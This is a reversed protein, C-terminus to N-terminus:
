SDSAPAPAASASMALVLYHIGARYARKRDFHWRLRLGHESMKREYARVMQDIPVDFPRDTGYFEARRALRREDSRLEPPVQPCVNLLLVSEPAVIRFLGPFLDFHEVYGRGFTTITNDVVVIEFRRATRAVEAFSDTIVVTAGPLNKELAAEHAPNIEWVELQGVDRRYDITHRFGTGAFVEVASASETRVGRRRLERFVRQTPSLGLARRLSWLARLLADPIRAPLLSV